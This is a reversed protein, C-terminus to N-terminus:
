DLEQEVIEKEQKPSLRRPPVKIPSECGTDISHEVLDTQGLKGDPKMFIDEFELLLSEIKKKEKGNLQNSSKDLLIALHEPLKSSKTQTKSHPEVQHVSEVPELNAICTNRNIKVSRNTLNLLSIVIKEKKPDVLTKAMLLGNVNVIQKPEVLGYKTGLKGQIYGTCCFETDPPIKITDSLRIRACRFLTKPNESLPFNQKGIKLTENQFNVVGKYKKLFDVGLIGIDGEFKGVLMQQEFVNDPDCLSFSFNSMGLIPISEGKRCLLTKNVSKLQKPKIKGSLM